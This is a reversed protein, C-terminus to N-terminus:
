QQANLLGPKSICIYVRFSKFMVSVIILSKLFIEYSLTINFIGKNDESIEELRFANFTSATPSVAILYDYASKVAKSADDKSM